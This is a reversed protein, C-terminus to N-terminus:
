NLLHQHLALGQPLSLNRMLGWVYHLRNHCILLCFFFFSFYVAVSMLLWLPILLFGVFLLSAQICISRVLIQSVALTAWVVQIKTAGGAKSCAEGCGSSLASIQSINACATSWKVESGPNCLSPFDVPTLRETSYPILNVCHVFLTLSICLTNRM